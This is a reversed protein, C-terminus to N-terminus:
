FEEVVETFYLGFYDADDDAVMGHWDVVLYDLFHFFYHLEFSDLDLVLYFLVFM